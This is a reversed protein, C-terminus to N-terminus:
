DNSITYILTIHYNGAHYDNRDFRILYDVGVEYRGPEGHAIVQDQPSMTLYPRGGARVLLDSIPKVYSDDDSRGMDLDPTRVTISWPINSTAVLSSAQPREIFGRELDSRIPTPIFFTSTVSKSGDGAQGLVTLTQTPLVTFTVRGSASNDAHSLPSLTFM